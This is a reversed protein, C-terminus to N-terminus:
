LRGLLLLLSASARMLPNAAGAALDVSNHPANPAPTMPTSAGQQQLYPNVPQPTPSTAWGDWHAEGTQPPSQYAPPSSSSPSVQSVPVVPPYAVPSTPTAAPPAGGPTQSSRRGGPNPRIITRERRGFPDDTDSM